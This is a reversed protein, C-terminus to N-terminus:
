DHQAESEAMRWAALAGAKLTVRVNTEILNKVGDTEDALALRYDGEPLRGLQAAAHFGCHDDAGYQAALDYERVMQTNLLIATDPAADGILAARVNVVGVAAGPRLLAGSIHLVGDQDYPENTILVLNDPAKELVAYEGVKAEGRLSVANHWHIMCVGAALLLIAALAALIVWAKLPACTKQKNM